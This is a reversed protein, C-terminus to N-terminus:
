KSEYYVKVALAILDRYLAAPSHHDHPSPRAQTPKLGCDSLVEKIRVLMKEPPLNSGRLLAVLETAATELAPVRDGTLARQIAACL